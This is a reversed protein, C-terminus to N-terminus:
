KLQDQIYSQKNLYDVLEDLNILTNSNSSYPAINLDIEHEQNGEIKKYDITRLDAPIRLYSELEIAKSMEESSCLTETYNRETDQVM